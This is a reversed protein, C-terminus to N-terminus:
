NSETGALGDIEARQEVLKRAGLYHDFSRNEMCLIVFTEIGGLLQEATMSSTATCANVPAADPPADPTDGADPTESSEHGCGIAAAGVAVGIGRLADRRTITGM